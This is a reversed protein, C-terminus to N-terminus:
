FIGGLIGSPLPLGLGMAFAIQVIASFALGIGATTLWPRAGLASAIAFYLAAASLLWGVPDLIVIFLTVSGVVIGLTKWDTRVDPKEEDAVVTQEGRASARVRRLVSVTVGVATVFLLAAVLSPFFTPGPTDDGIVEMTAIQVVMFIGIAALLAAVSLEAWERPHTGRVGFATQTRTSTTYLTPKTSM